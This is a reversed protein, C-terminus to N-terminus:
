LTHNERNFVVLNSDSPGISRIKSVLAKKQTVCNQLVELTSMTSPAQALDEVINYNQAIIEHPNLTSKHIVGKPPKLTIKTPIVKPTPDSPSSTSNTPQDSAHGNSHNVDGFDKNQTDVM